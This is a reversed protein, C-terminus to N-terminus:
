SEPKKAGCAGCQEDFLGSNSSGCNECYWADPDPSGAGGCYTVSRSLSTYSVTAKSAGCIPCQDCWDNNDAGCENCKWMDNFSSQVPYALSLMSHHHLHTTKPLSGSQHPSQSASDRAFDHGPFLGTAQQREGPNTCCGSQYDRYHGCVPCRDPANAILNSAGCDGCIWVDPRVRNHDM